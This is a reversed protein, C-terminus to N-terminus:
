GIHACLHVLARNMENCKSYTDSMLATIKTKYDPNMLVTVRDKDAPLVIITDDKQLNRLAAREAKTINPELLRTRKVTM